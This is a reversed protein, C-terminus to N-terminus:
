NTNTIIDATNVQFYQKFTYGKIPDDRDKKFFRKMNIHIKYEIFYIGSKNIRLLYPINMESGARLRGTYHRKDVTILGIISDHLQLNSSSDLYYAKIESKYHMGEEEDKQVLESNPRYDYYLVVDRNGTNLIHIRVLLLTRNNGYDKM